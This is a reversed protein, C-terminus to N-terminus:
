TDFEIFILFLKTKRTMYGFWSFRLARNVWNAGGKSGTQASSAGPSGSCGAQAIFLCAVRNELLGLLVGPGLSYHTLHGFLKGACSLDQNISSSSFLSRASRGTLNQRGSRHTSGVHCQFQVQSGLKVLVCWNTNQKFNCSKKKTVVLDFYPCM